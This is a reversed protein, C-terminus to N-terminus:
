DKEAEEAEFEFCILALAMVGLIFLSFVGPPADFPFLAVCQPSFFMTYEQQRNLGVPYHNYECFRNGLTTGKTLSQGFWACGCTLCYDPWKRDGEIEGASAPLAPHWGRSM